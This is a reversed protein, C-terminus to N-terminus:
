QLNVLIPIVSTGCKLPMLAKGIVAGFALSKDAAKMAYGELESTTILDGVNIAVKRADAKCYVKGMIAVPLRNPEGNKDMVIGPKYKGAGAIVGVVHSDYNKNCPVLKGEENLSMVTGPEAIGIMEGAIDFDEAFDANLFEIDGSSGRLKITEVDNSNKITIDGNAGVGGLTIDGAGSLVITDNGM